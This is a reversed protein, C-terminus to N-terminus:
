FSTNAQSNREPLLVESVQHSGHRHSITQGTLENIVLISPHNLGCDRNESPEYTMLLHSVELCTDWHILAQSVGVCLLSRACLASHHTQGPLLLFKQPPTARFSDM